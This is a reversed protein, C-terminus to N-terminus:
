GPAATRFLLRQRRAELWQSDAIRPPVAALVSRPDEQAYLRERCSFIAEFEEWQRRNTFPRSRSADFQEFRRLGLDALVFESWSQHFNGFYLLKLRECLMLLM